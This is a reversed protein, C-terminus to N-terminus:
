PELQGSGSWRAQAAKRATESRKEPSLKEARAKGRTVGGSRGNVQAQSPKESPETVRQVIRHAMRNLDVIPHDYLTSAIGSGGAVGNGAPPRLQCRIM